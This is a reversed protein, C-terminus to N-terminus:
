EVGDDGVGKVGCCCGGRIGVGLVSVLLVLGRFVALFFSSLSAVCGRM